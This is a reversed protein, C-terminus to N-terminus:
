RIFFRKAVVASSLGFARLDNGDCKGDHNADPVVNPADDFIGNRDNDAAEAVFLTSLTRVGFLPAGIIWTDWIEDEDPKRNTVGTLNFLGALNQCSKAGITTTSLLVILGKFNPSRGPASPAPFPAINMHGGPGTLAPRTFGTTRLPGAPFDIALDVFWSVGNVGARDGNEPAFVEIAVPKAAAANSQAAGQAAAVESAALLLPLAVLPGIVAVAAITGRTPARHTTIRLPPKRM